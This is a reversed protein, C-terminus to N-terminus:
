PMNTRGEVTVTIAWGGGGGFGAPPVTLFGERGLLMNVEPAFREDALESGLKVLRILRLAGLGLGTGLVERGELTTLTLEPLWVAVWWFGYM